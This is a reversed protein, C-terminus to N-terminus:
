HGNGFLLWEPVVFVIFCDIFYVKFALFVQTRIKCLIRAISINQLLTFHLSGTPIIFKDITFPFIMLLYPYSYLPKVGAGSVWTSHYEVKFFFTSKHLLFYILFELQIFFPHKKILIIISCTNVTIIIKPFIVMVVCIIIWWYLFCHGACNVVM